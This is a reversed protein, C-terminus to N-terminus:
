LGRENQCVGHHQASERRALIAGSDVLHDLVRNETIAMKEVEEFIAHLQENALLAGREVPNERSADGRLAADYTGVLAFAAGSLSQVEAVRKAMREFGERTVPAQQVAFRYAPSQDSCCPQGLGDAPERCCIGHADLAQDTGYAREWRQRAERWRSPCRRHKAVL